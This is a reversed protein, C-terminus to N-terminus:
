HFTFLFKNEGLSKCDIGRLPCWIRGVAQELSDPHALKEFFLKAVAMVAGSLSKNSGSGETIRVWKREVESLDLKRLMGEVSNNVTVLLWNQGDVGACFPVM